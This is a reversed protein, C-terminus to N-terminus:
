GEFSSCHSVREGSCIHGDGSGARDVPCDGACGQGGVSIREQGNGVLAVAVDAGVAHRLRDVPVDGVDDGPLVAGDDALDDRGVVELVREGADFLVLVHQGGVVPVVGRAR